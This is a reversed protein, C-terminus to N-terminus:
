GEPPTCGCEECLSDWNDWSTCRDCVGACKNPPPPQAQSGAYVLRWATAEPSLLKDTGKQRVVVTWFYEGTGGRQPLVVDLDITQETGTWLEAAGDHSQGQKWILVQFAQDAKLPQPYAWRFTVRGSLSGADKEEPALLTPAPEGQSQTPETSPTPSPPVKSPQPTPETVTAVPKDPSPSPLPGTATPSPSPGTTTPSPETATPSPSPETTAQPLTFTATPEPSIEITGPPQTAVPPSAAIAPATDGSRALVLAVAVVILGVVAVAGLIIGATMARTSRPRAAPTKAPAAGPVPQAVRKQQGASGAPSDGILFTSEGLRLVAGPRLPEPGTIRQGDLYTGNSSGADQVVYAGGQWSITAHHRSAHTDALVITNGAQRGITTPAGSLPIVEGTRQDTLTWSPPKPHSM